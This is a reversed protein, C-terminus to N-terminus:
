WSLISILFHNGSFNKWFVNAWHNVIRLIGLKQGKAPIVLPFNGEHCVFINYEIHCSKEMPKEEQGSNCFLAFGM